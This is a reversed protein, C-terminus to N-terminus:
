SAESHGGMKASVICPRPMEVSGNLKLRLREARLDVEMASTYDRTLSTRRATTLTPNINSKSLPSPFLTPFLTTIRNPETPGVIMHSRWLPKPLSYIEITCFSRLQCRFPSGKRRKKRCGVGLGGCRGHDRVVRDVM